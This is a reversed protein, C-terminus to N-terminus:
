GYNIKGDEIRKGDMGTITFALPIRKGECYISVGAQHMGQIPVQIMFGAKASGKAGFTISPDVVIKQVKGPKVVFKRIGKPAIASLFWDRGMDDKRLIRFGTLTYAGPPLARWQAAKGDAAEADTEGEVPEWALRIVEGKANKVFLSGERFGPTVFGDAV